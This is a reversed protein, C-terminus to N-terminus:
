EVGAPVRAGERAHSDGAAAFGPLRVTFESGQGVVSHVAIEGGHREVISKAISLGLGAGGVARSRVKDARWFRDFVHPLHDPAIGIGTDSVIAQLGGSGGDLRFSIEGGENTYKVANDLLVLFMRSLAQEDGAVLVPGTAIEARVRINKDAALTSAQEAADRALQAVDVPSFPVVDGGSDSRALQLLDDILRSTRESERLITRLANSLEQHTRERRLSFEAATHILTVPARLEHSADATFQVMRRVARDLGELMENLTQALGQLEDRARPVQLRESLNNISIRRADRTIRDVPSLARSSMWFGGASAIILFLPGLILLTGEASELSEDLEYLPEAVDVAFLRGLVRVNRSAIRMRDRGSGTTRYVVGSIGEPKVAKVQQAPFRPSGYMVVGDANVVRFLGGALGLQTQERFEELLSAPGASLEKGLFDRVDDARVALSHDVTQALSTRIALWASFGFLTLIAAISVFYWATLRFRISHLPMM